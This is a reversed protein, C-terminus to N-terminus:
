PRVACDNTWSGRSRTWVSPVCQPRAERSCCVSPGTVAFNLTHLQRTLRVELGSYFNRVGVARVEDRLARFHEATNISPYKEKLMSVFQSERAQAVRPSSVYLLWTPQVRVRLVGPGM